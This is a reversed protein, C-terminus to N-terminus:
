IDKAVSIRTAKFKNLFVLKFYVTSHGHDIGTFDISGTPVIRNQDCQM